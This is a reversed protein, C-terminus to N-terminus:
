MHELMEDLGSRVFRLRDRTSTSQLWELRLHQADERRAAGFAGGGGSEAGDEGGDEGMAQEQSAATFALWPPPLFLQLAWM